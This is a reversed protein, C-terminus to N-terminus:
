SSGGVVVVEESPEFGLRWARFRVVGSHRPVPQGYLTWHRGDDEPSGILVEVDTRERVEGPPQTTWGISAGPTACSAVWHGDEETVVPDATRQYDGGPRWSELLAAEDLPWPDAYEAQWEDLWGRLRALDDAHEPDDVLNTLEHPDAVLDHLEEAPRGPALISRQTEDLRRGPEGRAVAQADEFALERLEQWTAFRDPYASHQMPSRDPHAHRVYRFRQDRVTLSADEQEDIRARAGFVARNPDLHGGEADLFPQSHMHDPVPIGCATLMTAALDMVHVLESRRGPPVVGPWRLILPVRLGAENVWRKARPLGVGHDVWFVVITDDALGDEELQALLGEVWLDMQTVLDGYRAWTNRFTPTDPYYPPLPATAPDHRREPTVGATEASFADDDYYLRSEHTISSHFAAFFPTDPTPRDRWHATTSCEDFAVPPTQVQFDTFSNNTTYYGAERFYESLLRVEPPPAAKTRMPLTGVASPHCGTMLAARSPACVPSSAFAHDYVVGDAALADLAPTDAYEAGPWVGRYPGIDPCIDHTSIWLVHPPRSQDRPM